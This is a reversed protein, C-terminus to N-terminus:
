DMVDLILVILIEMVIMIQVTLVYHSPIKMRALVQIAVLEQVTICSDKEVSIRMLEM